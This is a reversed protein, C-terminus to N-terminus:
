HPKRTPTLTFFYYFVSICDNNCYHDLTLADPVIFNNITLSSTYGQTTTGEDGPHVDNGDTGNITNVEAAAPINNLTLQQRMVVKAM